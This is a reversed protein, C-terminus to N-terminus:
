ALNGASLLSTISFRGQPHHLCAVDADKPLNRMLLACQRTHQGKDEHEDHHEKM